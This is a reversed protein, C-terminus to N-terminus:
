SPPRFPYGARACAARLESTISHFGGSACIRQAQAGCGHLDAGGLTSAFTVRICDRAEAGNHTDVTHIGLAVAALLVCVIVVGIASKERRGWQLPESLRRSQEQMVM